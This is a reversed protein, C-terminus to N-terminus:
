FITLWVSDETNIRLDTPVYFNLTMEMANIISICPCTQTYVKFTYVRNSYNKLTFLSYILIKYMYVSLWAWVVLIQHCPISVSSLFCCYCIHNFLKNASKLVVSIEPIGISECERKKTNTIEYLRQYTKVMYGSCHEM